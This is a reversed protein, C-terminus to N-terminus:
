CIVNLQFSTRAASDVPDALKAQNELEALDPQLQRYSFRRKGLGDEPKLNFVSLLDPNDVVFTPLTDAKEPRFFVDLLWEDPTLRSGDALVVAQRQQLQLLSSRALTDMPKIRGDALIPLRGFGVVDFAGPNRPPLLKAGFYGLGLALALLPLWRKM